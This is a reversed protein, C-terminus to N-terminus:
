VKAPQAIKSVLAKFQAFTLPKFGQYVSREVHNIHALMM